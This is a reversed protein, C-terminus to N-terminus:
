FDMDSQAVIQKTDPDFATLNGLGPRDTVFVGNDLAIFDYNENQEIVLNMFGYDVPIHEHIIKKDHSKSFDVKFKRTWVMSKTDGFPDAINFNMGAHVLFYEELEIYPVCANM